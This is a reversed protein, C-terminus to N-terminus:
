FNNTDEGEFLIDNKEKLLKEENLTLMPDSKKGYKEDRM